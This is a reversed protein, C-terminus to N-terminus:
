EENPVLTVFVISDMNLQIFNHRQHEKEPFKKHVVVAGKIALFRRNSSLLDTLIREKKSTRPLFVQGTIEYDETAVFIKETWFESAYSM